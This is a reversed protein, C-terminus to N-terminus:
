RSTVGVRYLVSSARAVRESTEVVAGCDALARIDESALGMADPPRKSLAPDNPWSTGLIDPLQSLTWHPSTDRLRRGTLLIGAVARFSKRSSM